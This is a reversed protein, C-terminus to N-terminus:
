NLANQTCYQSLINDLRNLIYHYYLKKVRLRLDQNFYVRTQCKVSYNYTSSIKKSAM